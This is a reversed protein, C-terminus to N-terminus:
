MTLPSRHVMYPRVQALPSCAIDLLAQDVQLRRNKELLHRTINQSIERFKPLRIPSLTTPNGPIEGRRFRRKVFEHVGAPVLTNVLM